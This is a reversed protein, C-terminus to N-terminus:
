WFPRLLNYGHKGNLQLKLGPHYRKIAPLLGFEAYQSVQSCEVSYRMSIKVGGYRKFPMGRGIMLFIASVVAKLGRIFMLSIMTENCM